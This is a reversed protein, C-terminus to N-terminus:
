NWSKAAKARTVPGLSLSALEIWGRNVVNAWNGEIKVLLPDGKKVSGAAAGSSDKQLQAQTEVKKHAAPAATKQTVQAGASAALAVLALTTLSLKQM